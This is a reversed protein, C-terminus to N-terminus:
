SHAAQSKDIERIAIESLPERGDQLVGPQCDLSVGVMKSVVRGVLFPQRFDTSAAPDCQGMVLADAVRWVFQLGHDSMTDGQQDDDAVCGKRVESMGEHRRERTDLTEERLVFWGEDGFDIPRGRCFGRPARGRRSSDVQPIRLPLFM